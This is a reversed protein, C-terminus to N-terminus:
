NEQTTSQSKLQELVKFPSEDETKLTEAPQQYADLLQKCAETEHYAVAPLALILDDEILAWLQGQEGEVVWPELTAPLQSAAEDDGVIALRSECEIDMPMAELCRQCSVHLRGKVSVIVLFRNEEDREFRCQAEIRGEDSALMGRLRSLEALAVEGRVTVGRAAAKRVDLTTPLPETLM